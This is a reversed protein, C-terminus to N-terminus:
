NGTGALPTTAQEEARRMDLLMEYEGLAIVDGPHLVHKDIRKGNVFTGNTSGLDEIYSVTLYTYIRAHKTSVTPNNIRLDNGYGRGILVEGHRLQQIVSNDQKDRIFLGYIKEVDAKM